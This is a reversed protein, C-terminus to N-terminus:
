LTLKEADTGRVKKNKLYNGQALFLGFWNELFKFGPHILPKALSRGLTKRAFGQAVGDIQPGPEDAVNSVSVDCGIIINHIIVDTIQPEQEFLDGTGFGLLIVFGQQWLIQVRIAQSSECGLCLWVAIKARGRDENAFQESM